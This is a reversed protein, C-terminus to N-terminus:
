RGSNRGDATAVAAVFARMRAHDKIGPASEVGSSVDVIEPALVEIAEGVVEPALGGALVLPTAGRVRSLAERVGRWDVRAGTGGLARDSRADVVVADAADFLEAAGGPLTSGGVRLVGWVMRGTRERVERVREADPDAHLQVVDLGVRDVIDAITGDDQSGFVGVKRVSASVSSAASLVLRARDTDLLRPGGAFIVGVWQAGSEAAVRADEPRM